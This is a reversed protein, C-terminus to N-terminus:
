QVDSCPGDSEKKQQQQQGINCLINDNGVHTMPRFTHFIIPKARMNM